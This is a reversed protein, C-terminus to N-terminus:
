NERNKESTNGRSVDVRALWDSLHRNVADPQELTSLHGCAPLEVLRSDVIQSAMAVHYEPPCLADDAGCLVLTPVRIESLTATSDPRDRLAVSQAAFSGPGHRLGMAMVADLVEAAPERSGSRYAPKLEDRLLWYLRGARAEALQHERVGRRDPNDSRHNTDLLALGAIREPVTRVLEFAVIGGMSLGAVAVPEERAAIRDIMSRAADAMASISDLGRFDVSVVCRLPKFAALQHRWLAEDCMMGPLLLLPTPDNNMRAGPVDRATLIPRWWSERFRASSPVM